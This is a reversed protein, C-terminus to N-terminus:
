EIRIIKDHREAVDMDHTVTIITTGSDKNMKDLLSLIREKNEPDLSATPEDCLLLTPNMIVARAFVAREREGGSCELPKKNLIHMIDIGQAISMFDTRLTEKHAKGYLLPLKINDEITMSNILASEQLVFGIKENRWKAFETLSMENTSKGFLTYSGNYKRDLLGLINLLTSKGAGSRGVIAIREGFTLDLSFNQLLSRMEGKRKYIKEQINLELIKNM